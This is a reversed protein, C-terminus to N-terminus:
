GPISIDCVVCYVCCICKQCSMDCYCMCCMGCVSSIKYAYKLRVKSHFANVIMDYIFNCLMSNEKLFVRFM